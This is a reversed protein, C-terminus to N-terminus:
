LGINSSSPLACSVWFAGFCRSSTEHDSIAWNLSLKWWEVGRQQTPTQINDLLVVVHKTLKSNQVPWQHPLYISQNKCPTTVLVWLVKYLKGRAIWVGIFADSIFSQRCRAVLKRILLHGARGGSGCGSGMSPHIPFLNKKVKNFSKFIYFEVTVRIYYNEIKGKGKGWISFRLFMTSRATCRLSTMNQWKLRQESM